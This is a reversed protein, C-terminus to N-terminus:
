SLQTWGADAPSVGYRQQVIEHWKRHALLLGEALERVAGRGGIASSVWHASARVAQHADHPATALTCGNMAPLDVIDDGMYACASRSVAAEACLRNMGEDKNLCGQTVLEIGLDEARRAVVTSSRGTLIAVQIGCRQLMKIGHGDRVHFGKAEEGGDLMIVRGDTLVGDVDLVLLRVQKAREFPFQQKGTAMTM